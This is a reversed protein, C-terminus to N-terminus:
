PQEGAAVAVDAILAKCVRCRINLVGDRYSVRTGASPHCRGHLFLEGSPGGHLDCGQGILDKQTLPKRESM